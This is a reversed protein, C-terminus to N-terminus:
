EIRRPRESARKLSSVLPTVVDQFDDFLSKSQTATVDQSEFLSVDAAYDIFDKEATELRNRLEAIEMSLYHVKQPTTDQKIQAEKETIDSKISDILSQLYEVREYREADSRLQASVAVNSVSLILTVFLYKIIKKKM